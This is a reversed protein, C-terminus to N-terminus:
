RRIRSFNPWRAWQTPASAISERRGAPRSGPGCVLRISLPLPLRTEPSRSGTIVIRKMAQKMPMGSATTETVSLWGTM